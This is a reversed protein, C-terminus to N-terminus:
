ERQDERESSHIKAPLVSRRQDLHDRSRFQKRKQGLSRRAPRRVFGIAGRGVCAAYFDRIHM